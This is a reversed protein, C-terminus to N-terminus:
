TSSSRTGRCDNNENNGVSHTQQKFFPSVPSLFKLFSRNERRKLPRTNILGVFKWRNLVEGHGSDGDTTSGSQFVDAGHSTGVRDDDAATVPGLLCKPYSHKELHCLQEKLNLSSHDTEICIFGASWMNFIEINYFVSYLVTRILIGAKMNM